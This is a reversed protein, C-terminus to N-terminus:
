GAGASRRRRRRHDRRDLLLRPVRHADQLADLEERAGGMPDVGQGRDGAVPRPVCLGELDPQRVCAAECASGVAASTLSARGSAAAVAADAAGSQEAASDVSAVAPVAAPLADGQLPRARRQLRAVLHVQRGPADRIRHELESGGGAPAAGLHRPRPRHGPLLLDRPQGRRNAGILPLHTHAHSPTAPPTAASQSPIPAAPTASLPIPLNSYSIPACYNALSGKLFYEYDSGEYSLRRGGENGYGALDHMTGLGTVAITSLTKQMESCGHGSVGLWGCNSAECLDKNVIDSCGPHGECPECGEVSLRRSATGVACCGETSEICLRTRPLFLTNLPNTDDHTGGPGEAGPYPWEHFSYTEDWPPCAQCQEETLDYECDYVTQRTVGWEGHGGEALFLLVLACPARM